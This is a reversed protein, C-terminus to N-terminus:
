KNSRKPHEFSTLHASVIVVEPCEEDCPDKLVLEVFLNRPLDEVAFLVEYVFECQDRWYARTEKKQRIPTGARVKEVLLDIIANPGLGLLEPDNTVRRVLNENKWLICGSTGSSVAERALRCGDDAEDM